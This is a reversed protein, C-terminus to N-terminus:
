NIMITGYLPISELSFVKTFKSTKHSNAFTKMAFNPPTADKLLVLSCDVFSKEAFIKNEVLEHFKEGMFTEQYVTDKTLTNAVLDHRM